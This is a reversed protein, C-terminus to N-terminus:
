RAVVAQARPQDVAGACGFPPPVLRDHDAIRTRLREDTLLRVLLTGAAHVLLRRRSRAPSPM